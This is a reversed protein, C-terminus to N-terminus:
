SFYHGEDLDASLGPHVVDLHQGIVTAIDRFPV